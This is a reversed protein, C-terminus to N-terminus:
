EAKVPVNMRRIHIWPCVRVCLYSFLWVPLCVFERM